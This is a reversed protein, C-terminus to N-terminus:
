KEKVKKKAHDAKQKCSVGRLARETDHGEIKGRLLDHPCTEIAGKIGM